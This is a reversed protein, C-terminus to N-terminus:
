TIMFDQDWGSYLKIKLAEPKTLDDTHPVNVEVYSLTIGPVRNEQGFYSIYKKGYYHPSISGYINNPCKIIWLAAELYIDVATRYLVLGTQVLYYIILGEIMLSHPVLPLVVPVEAIFFSDGNIEFKDKFEGKTVLNVVYNECHPKNEEYLPM